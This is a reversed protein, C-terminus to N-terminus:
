TETVTLPHYIAEFLKKRLKYATTKSAPSKVDEVVVSGAHEYRFDLTFRGIKKGNVVLDWSPQLVLGSIGGTKQWQKLECYRNAEKRSHFTIGDITTKVNGYKSRRPATQHVASM